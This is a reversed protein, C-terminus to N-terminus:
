RRMMDLSAQIWEAAEAPYRDQISLFEFLGDRPQMLFYYSQGLYFRARARTEPSRPLALFGTLENKVLEWNKATFPGRIVSALIFDEGREGSVQLDRAFVRPKKLEPEAPRSPITGLASAAQPSLALPPTESFASMGPAVAQTSIQPLPIARLDRGPEFRTLSLEVPTRTANSGPIIEITGQILDDESVVAYYYPIGAVPYDTFPSTIKTQLIVAGLLDQTQSIPRVSRYLAANRVNGQNYTIIIRDDRASAELASIGSPIVPARSPAPSEVAVQPRTIQPAPISSEDSIMLSITNAAAIPIEYKRGSEDSAVAFFYFTGGAEIEYVHSQVGYPIEVPIAEAGSMPVGSDFPNASRYVYVPGKIDPSDVWSLRVLGSRIEGHLDSVFPAYVHATQASLPSFIFALTFVTLFLRKTKM